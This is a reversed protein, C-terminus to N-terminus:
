EDGNFFFFFGQTVDANDETITCDFRETESCICSRDLLVSRITVLSYYRKSTHPAVNFHLYSFFVLNVM